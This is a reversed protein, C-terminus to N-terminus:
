MYMCVNIYICIYPCAYICIYPCMNICVCVSM